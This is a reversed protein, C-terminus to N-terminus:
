KKHWISLFNLGELILNPEFFHKVELDDDDLPFILSSDGGTIFVSYNKGLKDKLLYLARKVSSNLSIIIGNVICDETSNGLLDDSSITNKSKLEGLKGRISQLDVDINSTFDLLSKISTTVGPLILGGLHQGEIDVADITLATGVDIVCFPKPDASITLNRAAIMSLWRDAGLKSYDDYACKIGYIEKNTPKDIFLIPINLSSVEERNFDDLIIKSLEESVSSIYIGEIKDFNNSGSGMSLNLWDTFGSQFFSSSDKILSSSFSDLHHQGDHLSFKVNENGIDILLKM